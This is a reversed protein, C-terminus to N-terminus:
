GSIFPIYLDFVGRYMYLGLLGVFLSWIVLHTLIAYVASSLVSSKAVLLIYFFIFIPAAPLIGVLFILAVFPALMTLIATISSSSPSPSGSSTPEAEDAEDALRTALDRTDSGVLESESDHQRSAQHRVFRMVLETLMIVICSASVFLPALRAKPTFGWSMWAAALFVAFVVLVAILDEREQKQVQAQM